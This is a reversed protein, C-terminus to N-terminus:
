KLEKSSTTTAMIAAVSVMTSPRTEKLNNLGDPGDPEARKPCGAAREQEPEVVATFVERRPVSRWYGSRDVAHELLVVERVGDDGSVM